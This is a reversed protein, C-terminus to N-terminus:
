YWFPVFKSCALVLTPELQACALKLKPEIIACVLVMKRKCKAGIIALKRELVGFNACALAMKVRIRRWFQWFSPEPGNGFNVELKVGLKPYIQNLKSSASCHQYNTKFLCKKKKIFNGFIFIIEMSRAPYKNLHVFIYNQPLLISEADRLYIIGYLYVGLLRNRLKM